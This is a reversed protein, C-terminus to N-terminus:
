KYFRIQTPNEPLWEVVYGMNQSIFRFPVLIRNTEPDTVPACDLKVEVGDVLAVTKDLWLFGEKCGVPAIIIDTGTWAEYVYWGSDVNKTTLWEYPLYAYGNEGWGTGWSNRLILRNKEPQDGVIGVAHGGRITGNPLPLNGDADPEFNECVLLAMVFPGAKLALRMAALAQSRNADTRACIRAYSAIKYTEANAKADDSVSPVKGEPLSALTSYPMVKETCVGYKQLIQMAAKISTGETSPLGDVQKCMSYLFAASLGGEPYDSQALEHYTKLTWADACAVCSGRQGQDFVDPMMPRYDIEKPESDAAIGACAFLQFINYDRADYRSPQCNLKHGKFEGM